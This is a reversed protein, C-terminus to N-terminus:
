KQYTRFSVTLGCIHKSLASMANFGNVESLLRFWMKVTFRNGRSAIIMQESGNAALNQFQFHSTVVGKRMISSYNLTITEM